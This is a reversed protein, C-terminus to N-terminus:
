RGRVGTRRRDPLRPHGEGPRPRYRTPAAPTPRVRRITDEPDPLTLRVAFRWSLRANNRQGITTCAPAMGFRTVSQVWRYVTVHDLQVGREALLEEVDRFSLGFRQYWRVAVVILEAPFRFGAFASRSVPAPHRRTSLRVPRDQEIWL